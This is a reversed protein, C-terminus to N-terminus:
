ILGFQNTYEGENFGLIIQKEEHVLFPRKILKGDSQLIKIIHEDSSNYIDFNILKFNKSRTNFIKRKDKSFQNLALVLFKSPPPEKLIDIM